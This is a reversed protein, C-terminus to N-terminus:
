LRKEFILLHDGPAYFDVIRTIRKYENRRYFRRTSLYNPKSSTEVLVLKGGARSISEEAKRLLAEGIGQGRKEKTVAMWYIDWTYRTLPTQGFCVYGAVSSKIVAVTIIYYRDPNDLYADIVEEAVPIEEPEFESTDRLLAMLQPKDRSIMPRLKFEM